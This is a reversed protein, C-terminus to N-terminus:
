STRAKGADAAAIRGITHPAPINGVNERRGTERRTMTDRRSVANIAAAQEEHTRGADRRLRLRPDAFPDPM